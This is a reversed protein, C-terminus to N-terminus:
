AFRCYYKKIQNKSFPISHALFDKAFSKVPNRCEFFCYFALSKTPGMLGLRIKKFYVKLVEEIENANNIHEYRM